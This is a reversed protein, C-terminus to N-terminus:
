PAKAAIVDIESYFTNGFTDDSETRDMDFLLYRYPGISGAADSISVGYQGGGAGEKPRTDIKAILKWGCAAPDMGKKPDAKFGKANGDAAYLTYVQPGRTDPHWSYTNVQKIDIAARLDILLRGGETGANFFFNTAPEDQEAPLKGDHLVGLDGGAEDREGEVITFKAEMAAGKKSVPPIHKFKFDATAHDNDIHEVVSKVEARAILGPLLAVCAGISWRTLHNM